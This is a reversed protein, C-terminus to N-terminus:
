KLVLGLLFPVVDSYNPSGCFGSPDSVTKFTCSIVIVADDPLPGQPPIPNQVDPVGAPTQQNVCGLLTTPPPCNVAPYVVGDMVACVPSDSEQYPANGSGLVLEEPQCRDAAAPSAVAVPLVFAVSVTTAVISLKRVIANM